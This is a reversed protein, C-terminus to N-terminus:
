DLTVLWFFPPVLWCRKGEEGRGKTLLCCLEQDGSRNSISRLFWPVSAFDIAGIAPIELRM